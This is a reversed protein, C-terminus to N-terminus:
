LATLCATVIQEWSVGPATTSLLEAAHDTDGEDLATVVAVQRGDLRRTGVGRHQEIPALAEPRRITSTLTRTGDARLVLSLWAHVERRDEDTHTLDAPDTIGEFTISSSNGV